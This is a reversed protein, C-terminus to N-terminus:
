SVSAEATTVIMTTAAVLHIMAPTTLSVVKTDATDATDVEERM